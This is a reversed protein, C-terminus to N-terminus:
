KKGIMKATDKSIDQLCGGIQTLGKVLGSRNNEQHARVINNNLNVLACFVCRIYWVGLVAIAMWAYIM